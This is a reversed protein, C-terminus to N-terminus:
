CNGSGGTNPHCWGSLDEATIMAQRTKFRMPAAQKRQDLAEALLRAM